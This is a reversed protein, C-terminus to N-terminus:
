VDRLRMVPVMAGEDFSAREADLLVYSDAHAMSVVSGSAQGKLPSVRAPTAREDLVARVFELRGTGHQTAKTLSGATFPACPQDDGQMARLLPAGFLTFTLLASAPNGPLGLWRKDGAHGLAVPKGPKLAVKWFDLTVGARELATRVVDHEGVSVGGITVVVDSGALADRIANVVEDERDRAVPALRAVGGCQAVFAAVGPSISEIVSGPREPDEPSRLEDGTAVITVVPRRAVVVRVRGLSTLLSLQSPTLRTGSPLALAGARLDEGRRRINQGATMSRIMQAIAGDRRVNEQMEVADAGAPIRAGTFIRVCTGALVDPLEDGGARSEGDRVSLAKPVAETAGVTDEARVAYGDMASYDFPPLDGPSRVDERLVRGAAEHVLVRETAVRPASEIVRKRAEDFTLM